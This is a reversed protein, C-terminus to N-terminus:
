AIGWEKSSLLSGIVIHNEPCNAMPRVILLIASEWYMLQSESNHYISSCSELVLNTRTEFYEFCAARNQITYRLIIVTDPLLLYTVNFKVRKNRPANVTAKGKRKSTLPRYAILFLILGPVIYRLTRCRLRM